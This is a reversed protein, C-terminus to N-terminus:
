NNNESLSGKEDHNAYDYDIYSFMVSDDLPIDNEEACHKIVFEM